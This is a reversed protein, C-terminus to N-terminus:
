GSSALLQTSSHDSQQETPTSSTIWELVSERSELLAKYTRLVDLNPDRQGSIYLIKANLFDIDEQINKAMANVDIRDNGIYMTRNDSM